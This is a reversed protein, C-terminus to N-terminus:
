RRTQSIVDNLKEQDTSPIRENKLLNMMPLSLFDQQTSLSTLPDNSIGSQSHQRQLLHPYQQKFSTNFNM